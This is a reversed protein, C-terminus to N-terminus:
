TPTCMGSSRQLTTPQPTAEKQVLVQNRPKNPIQSRKSYNEQGTTKTWQGQYQHLRTKTAQGQM